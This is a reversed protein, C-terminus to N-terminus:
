VRELLVTQTSVGPGVGLVVARQGPDAATRALVHLAASSSLNGCERLVERSVDLAGAPLDAAAAVADLVKPGGPHVVWRDVGRGGGGGDDGDDGDDRHRGLFARLDHGVHRALVQPLQASLVIRLGSSGVRWGLADASDPLVRSTHDLVRWGPGPHDGGTVVVATAGDGFLGSAVVNAVSRDGAQLTLSCLEVSVLLGVSGPRGACFRELLALGSAGAVCGLGFGPWRLVDPRLGVRDPLLADVSPAGVGTVTTFLLVDVDHPELGATALAGKVAREALDLALDAFLANTTDFAGPGTVLGPYAELPLALHRTGVGTAAHLRHLLARGPGPDTLLPALVDAIDGQAYRHTPLVPEVAVVTAPPTTPPTPTSM